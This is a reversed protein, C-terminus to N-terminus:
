CRCIHVNDDKDIVWSEIVGTAVLEDLSRRLIGRFKSLRVGKSGSLTRITGIKMPCVEMSSYLDHLWKTLESVDKQSKIQFKSWAARKEERSGWGWVTRDIETIKELKVALYPPCPKRSNLIHNLFYPGISARQAVIRQTIKGM